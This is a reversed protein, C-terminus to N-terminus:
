RFPVEDDKVYLNGETDEMMEPRYPKQSRGTGRGGNRETERRDGELPRPAADISREGTFEQNEAVLTLANVKQGERNTYSGSQMHGTVLMLKGKQLYKEAFVAAQGFAVVPIYDTQQEGRGPRNIALSYRAIAQPNEGSTYRVEPDRTLRGMFICKNM